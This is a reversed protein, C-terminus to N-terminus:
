QYVIRANKSHRRSMDRFVFMVEARMNHEEIPSHQRACATAGVAPLETAIMRRASNEDISHDDPVMCHDRMQTPKYGAETAAAEM